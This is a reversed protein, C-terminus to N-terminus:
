TLKCNLNAFLLLHESQVYLSPLVNVKSKWQASRGKLILMKRLFTQGMLYITVQVLSERHPKPDSVPNISLKHVCSPLVM